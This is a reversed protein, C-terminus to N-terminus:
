AGRETHSHGHAQARRSDEKARTGWDDRRNARAKTMAASKHASVVEDPILFKEPSLFEECKARRTKDEPFAYSAIAAAFETNSIGARKKNLENMTEPNFADGELMKNDITNNIAITLSKGSEPAIEEALAKQGNIGKLKKLDDFFKTLLWTRGDGYPLHGMATEYLADFHKTFQENNLSPAVPARSNYHPRGNNRPSTPPPPASETNPLFTPAPPTEVKDASNATPEDHLVPPTKKRCNEILVAIEQSLKYPELRGGYQTVHAGDPKKGYEEIHRRFALFENSTLGMIAGLVQTQKLTLVHNDPHVLIDPEIQYLQAAALRVSEFHNENDFRLGEGIQPVIKEDIFSQVTPKRYPSNRM